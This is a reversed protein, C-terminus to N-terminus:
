VARDFFPLEIVERVLAKKREEPEENRFFFVNTLRPAALRLVAATDAPDADNAVVSLMWLSPASHQALAARASAPSPVARAPDAPVPSRMAPLHALLRRWRHSRVRARAASTPSPLALALEAPLPFWLVPLQGWLRRWHRSLVSTRAAAAVSGLRSLIFLLVDDPLASLLDEEGEGGTLDPPPLTPPSRRNGGSICLAARFEEWIDCM